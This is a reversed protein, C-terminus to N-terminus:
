VMVVGFKDTLSLRVLHESTAIDFSPSALPFDHGTFPRALNFVSCGFQTEQLAGYLIVKIVARLVTM